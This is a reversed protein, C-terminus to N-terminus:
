MDNTFHLIDTRLSEMNVESGVVVSFMHYGLCVLLM